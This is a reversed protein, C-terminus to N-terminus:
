GPLLLFPSYYLFALAGCVLWAGALWRLDRRKAWRWGMVLFVIPPVVWFYFHHNDQYASQGRCFRGLTSNPDANMDSGFAMSCSMEWTILTGVLHLLVFAALCMLVTLKRYGIQQEDTLGRGSTLWSEIAPM